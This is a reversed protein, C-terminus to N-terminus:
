AHKKARKAFYSRASVAKRPHKLHSKWAKQAAHLDKLDHQYVAEIAVRLLDAMSQHREVALHRLGSHIEQPLYITTRIM